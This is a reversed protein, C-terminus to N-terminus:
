QGGGDKKSPRGKKPPIYNDVTSVPILWVGRRDPGVKQAGPFYGHVAQWLITRPSVKLRRATDEITLYGNISTHSKSKTMNNRRSAIKRWVLRNSLNLRSDVRLRQIAVAAHPHIPM